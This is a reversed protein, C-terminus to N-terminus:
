PTQSGDQRKLYAIIAEREAADAIGAFAMITGPVVTSPSTLWRELHSDDWIFDQARLAASYPYGDLSAVKRGVVGYLSPGIKKSPANSVDHCSACRLFLIRGRTLPDAARAAAVYLAGPMLCALALACGAVHRAFWGAM